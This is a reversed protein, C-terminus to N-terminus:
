LKYLGEVLERMRSPIDDVSKTEYHDLAALPKGKKEGQTRSVGAVGEIDPSLVEIITGTQKALDSIMANAAFTRNAERLKDSDTIDAKVPDEDHVVTHELGFAGALEMYLPLNFKSGCDIVSVESDMCNLKKALFPILAQETAGEVFVTRRAFFMEAREPNIYQAMKFRQKRAEHGEGAFLEQTCQKVKTGRDGPEKRLIAINRYDDIHIFHPSHTSMFLQHHDASAVQRLNQDFRRQAHPHLFMEPEEILLVVSESRARPALSEDGAQGPPKMLWKSWVRTLAFIMARQLGHGKEEASTSVGDNIDINTGLEFVKEIDPPAVRIDLKVNWAALEKELGTELETLQQPRDDKDGEKNLKSFLKSLGDRMAQFNPDASAMDAIAHALLRGFLSAGKADTEKSLERVAPILHVDPLAGAAVNRQGLLPGEELADEWTLETSHLNIYQQQAAIVVERSPRGSPILSQLEPPLDATKKYRGATSEQLWDTTPQRRWGQYKIEVKEDESINATKRIRLRGAADVYKEFTKKEQESLDEFIAEVWMPENLGRHSCFDRLQPKSSSSLLFEVAHLVNSKGHNNPGLLVTAAGSEIELDRISRYNSIQLHSIRM